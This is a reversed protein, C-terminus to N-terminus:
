KIQLLKAYAEKFVKKLQEKESPSFESLVM